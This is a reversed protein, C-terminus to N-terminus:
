ADSKGKKASDIRIMKWGSCGDQLGGRNYRRQQGTIGQMRHVEFTVDGNKHAEFLIDHTLCCDCCLLRMISGKPLRRPEDGDQSTPYKRREIATLEEDTTM